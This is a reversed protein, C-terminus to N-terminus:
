CATRFVQTVWVRGVRSVVGVGVEAYRRNLINARHPASGLLAAHARQPTSAYAVNEGVRGCMVSALTTSHVLKAPGAMRKSHRLAYANLDTRARLPKRGNRVRTANIRKVLQRSYARQRAARKVAARKAAVRRDAVRKATAREVATSQALSSVASASVARGSVASVSAAVAASEVRPTAGAPATPGALAATTVALTGVLLNIPRPMALRRHM